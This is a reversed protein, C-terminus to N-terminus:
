RNRGPASLSPTQAGCKNNKDIRWKTCQRSEIPVIKITKFMKDYKKQCEAKVNCYYIRVRGSSGYVCKKWMKGEHEGGYMSYEKKRVVKSPNYTDMDLQMLAGEQFIICGGDNFIYFLIIGEEYNEKQVRIPNPMDVFIRTSLLDVCEMKTSSHTIQASQPCLALLPM